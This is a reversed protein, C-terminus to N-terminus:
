FFFFTGLFIKKKKELNLNNHSFVRQGLLHIQEEFLPLLFIRQGGAERAQCAMVKGNAFLVTFKRKIAGKVSHSCGLWPPVAVTDAEAVPSLTPAPAPASAM